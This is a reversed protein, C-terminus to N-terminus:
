RTHSSPRDTLVELRLPAVPGGVHMIRSASALDVLLKGDPQTSGQGSFREAGLAAQVATLKIQPGSRTISLGYTGSVTRVPYEQLVDVSRAQFTGDSRLNLLLDIGIGSTELSGALDVKGGRWALGALSGSIEYQPESGSVDVKAAAAIAGDEIRGEIDEFRIAPGDWEVRSRFGRVQLEGLDLAGVRLQGAAKRDRLWAPISSKGLRLTRKLFGAGDNQLTPLLLKEVAEGSAEPISLNFSHSDSAKSYRYQGYAEMSGARLRMRKVTVETDSIDVSGRILTIPEAMGPPRTVADKFDLNGTWAGAPRDSSRAFRIWGSWTGASFHEIVPTPGTGLLAGPRLKTFPLDAGRITADLGQTDSSYVAEIQVTEGGGSLNAPGLRMESGSVMLNANELDLQPGAGLRVKASDITFQAQLGSQGVGLVGSLNGTVAVGPPLPAGMHRAVEAMSAAPLKDVSVDAAWRPQSHMADVLLRATVPLGPNDEPGARLQLRQSGTDFSGRYKLQIGGRRVPKLDWRHVDDIAIDGLIELQSVPGWVKARSTIEGHLGLSEGRVLTALEDIDSKDLSVDLEFRNEGSGSTLWRGSVGVLGFGRAARDTRAPEGSFRVVFAGKETSRPVLTLSPNTFYFRSKTNDFKFNIRGGSVQIEPLRVDSRGGITRQLLLVINWPGTAPKVLNISPEVFRVRAFEIRGALLSAFRVRAELELMHAFPEIGASPDDYITVDEMTFGPGTFLNFTVKGIEVRRDLGRELAEKIQQGYRDAGVFPAAIGALVLCGLAALAARIVYSRKM